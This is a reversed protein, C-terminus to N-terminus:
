EQLEEEESTVKEQEVAVPAEAVDEPAAEEEAVAVAAEAVDEPAAEEEAVAVAAEAVDEPAAEEEAVAVAAEAVDEPAEAEAVAVLEEAVEAVPGTVDEPGTGDVAAVAAEVVEPVEEGAQAVAVGESVERPPVRPQVPAPTPGEARVVLHRLVNESLKLQTELEEPVLTDTGFRSVLYNGELFTHGGKRIPYALRRLGWMDEYTIDGGHQTILEKFRGWTASSEDQSLVPSLVIVIEYERL